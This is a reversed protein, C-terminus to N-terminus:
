KIVLNEVEMWAAPNESLGYGLHGERTWRAYQNDMWIVLGLPSPPSIATTLIQNGDIKFDCHNEDWQISYEHWLTADLDISKGEQRIFRRALNRLWRSTRKWALFPIAPAGLILAPAPIRTSRFTGAFFGDGPSHQDDLSIWNPPGAHFFWATQPLAPIRWPHGGFGISFGFPDNWIGFGWTGPLNSQSTKARLRVERPAIHKFRGRGSVVYDDLQALRYRQRDGPPMELRWGAETRIVRGGGIERHFLEFEM